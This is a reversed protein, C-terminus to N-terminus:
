ICFLYRNKHSIQAYAKQLPTPQHLFPEFTHIQYKKIRQRSGKDPVRCLQEIGLALLPSEACRVAPCVATIATVNRRSTAATGLARKQLERCLHEIGHTTTQASLRSQEWEAYYTHVAPKKQASLQVRQEGCLTGTGLAKSRARPV